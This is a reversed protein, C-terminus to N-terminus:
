RCNANLRMIVIHSATCSNGWFEEIKGPVDDLSKAIADAHPLYESPVRPGVGLDAPYWVYVMIERRVTSDEAYREPRARDVWDYGVRAVGYRGSPHPLQIRHATQAFVPALLLSIIWLIALVLVSGLTRM